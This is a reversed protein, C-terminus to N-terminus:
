RNVWEKVWLAYPQKKGESMARSFTRPKDTLGVIEAIADYSGKLVGEDKLLGIVYAKLLTRKNRVGKVAWQLAIREGYESSMLTEVFSDTWAADYKKDTRFQAFWAEKLLEQLHKKPAFFNLEEKPKESKRAPNECDKREQQEYWEVSLMGITQIKLKPLSLEAIEWVEAVVPEVKHQYIEWFEFTEGNGIMRIVDDRHTHTGSDVSAQLRQQQSLWAEDQRLVSLWESASTYTDRNSSMM